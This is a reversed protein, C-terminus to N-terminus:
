HIRFLPLPVGLAYVFLGAAIALLILYTVLVEIPHKLVRNYCTAIVLVAVGAVLGSREVLFAFILVGLTVAVLSDIEIKGIREGDKV